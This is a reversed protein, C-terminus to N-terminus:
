LWKTWADVSRRHDDIIQQAETESAHVIELVLDVRELPSAKAIEVIRQPQIIGRPAYEPTFPWHRDGKGDTQQLHVMRTWPLLSELWAYPDGPRDLNPACCHGLDFCLMIPVGAGKNVEELLEIAEAPTHPIERPSPMLEWLFYRQGLAAESRTLARVADVLTARWFGRRDPDAFDAVSMAGIHGGTGEAGLKRTLDLAREFWRRAQSRAFSNPHALHNQAYVVLGTFTTRLHLGYTRAASRVEDCLASRGPEPLTPDLLDFSFQMERLNLDEGIIRAWAMPEPWNKAAFSNNVGLVIEPM